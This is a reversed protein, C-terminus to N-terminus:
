KRRFIGFVPKTILNKEYRNMVFGLSLICFVATYCVIGLILSGWNYFDVLGSIFLTATCLLVPVIYVKAVEKWFKVMDLGTRAHYYWNMVLGQGIVLAVGTMLAAGIIGIWHMLFWTGIVNTVAIGLYVLSRFRHKNQAMIVNLCVSQVLPIMNPVMMFIAVWYADEYGSGTYLQIFPRGFAIFGSVVLMFIYGQLRGVRIALNTLERNDAGSFVM